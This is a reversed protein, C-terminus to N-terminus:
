ALEGQAGTWPDHKNIPWTLYLVVLSRVGTAEDSQAGFTESPASETMPDFM